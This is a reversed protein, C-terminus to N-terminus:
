IVGYKQVNEAVDHLVVSGMGIIVNREIQVGQLITANAGIHTDDGIKCKGLIVAGPAIHAFEGIYCEHEVIAGSNIISQDKIISGVNIIANKGIFIGNGLISDSSVTASRDIINVFEFNMDLLKKYLKRRTMTNGISGVAIFAYHYGRKYMEYIMEDDGVVKIGSIETGIKIYPDIIAIESYLSRNLSDIVSLCHGGGGILLLKKNEM